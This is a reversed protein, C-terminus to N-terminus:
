RGSCTYLGGQGGVLVHVYDMQGGVLVHIYDM